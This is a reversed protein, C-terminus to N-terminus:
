ENVKTPVIQDYLAKVKPNHKFIQRKMEITVVKQEEHQNAVL